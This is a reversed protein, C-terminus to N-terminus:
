ISNWTSFYCGISDLNHQITNVKFVTVAPSLWTGLKKTIPKFWLIVISLVLAEFKFVQRQWFEDLNILDEKLLM